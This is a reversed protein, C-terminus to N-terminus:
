GYLSVVRRTTSTTPRDPLLINTGPPIYPGLAALGPNLDLTPTLLQRALDAGFEAALIEDLVM